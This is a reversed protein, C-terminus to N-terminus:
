GKIFILRLSQFVKIFEGLFELFFVFALYKEVIRLIGVYSLEFFSRSEPVVLVAKQCDGFM